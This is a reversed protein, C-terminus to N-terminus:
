KAVYVNLDNSKGNETITSLVKAAISDDKYQVWRASTYNMRANAFRAIAATGPKNSGCNGCLANWQMADGCEMCITCARWDSWNAPASSWNYIPSFVSSWPIPLTVATYVVLAPISLRRILRLM